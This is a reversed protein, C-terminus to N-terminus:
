CLYPLAFEDTENFCIPDVLNVVLGSHVFEIWSELGTNGRVINGSSNAYEVLGPNDFSNNILQSGDTKRFAIAQPGGNIINSDYINDQPRGGSSGEFTYLAYRSPPPTLSSPSVLYEDYKIM